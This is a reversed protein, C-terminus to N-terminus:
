RTLLGEQTAALAELGSLDVTIRALSATPLVPGLGDFRVPPFAVSLFAGELHEL